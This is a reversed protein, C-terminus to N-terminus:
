ARCGDLFLRACAKARAAIEEPAPAPRQGLMIARQPEMSMMGRLMGTAMNTDALRLLGRDCQRKLWAELSRQTSLMAGEYFTGALEPFRGCEGIVLRLIASTEANLTLEGYATLIRVLAEELELGGLVGDDTALMYHGIREDIVRAFLDAKTPILRYLTKTSIGAREAVTGMGTGAYGNAQFEAAAAAVLLRRTEDDSRLQPRGRCRQVRDQIERM